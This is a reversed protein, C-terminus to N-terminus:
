PRRVSTCDSEDPLVKAAYRGALQAPPVAADRGAFPSALSAGAVAALRSYVPQVPYRPGGCRHERPIGQRSPLFARTADAKGNIARKDVIGFVPERVSSCRLFQLGSLPHSKFSLNRAVRTRARAIDITESGSSACWPLATYSSVLVMVSLPVTVCHTHDLGWQM